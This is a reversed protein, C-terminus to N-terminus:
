KTHYMVKVYGELFTMYQHFIKSEISNYKLINRGLEYTESILYTVRSPDTTINTEIYYNLSYFLDVRALFLLEEDKNEKIFVKLIDAAKKYNRSEILLESAILLGIKNKDKDYAELEKTIIVIDKYKSVLAYKFYDFADENAYGLNFFEYSYKIVSNYDNLNHMLQILNMWTGTRKNDTSLSKLYSQKAKAYNIKYFHYICGELFYYVEDKEKITAMYDITEDIKSENILKKVRTYESNNM